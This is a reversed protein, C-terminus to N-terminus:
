LGNKNGGSREVYRGIDSFVILAASRRMPNAWSSILPVAKTCRRRRKEIFHSLPMGVRDLPLESMTVVIRHAAGIRASFIPLLADTHHLVPGVM